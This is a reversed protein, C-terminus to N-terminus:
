FVSYTRPASPDPSDRLYASEVTVTFKAAAQAKLPRAQGWAALLLGVVALGSLV